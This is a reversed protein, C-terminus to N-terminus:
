YYFDGADFLDNDYRIQYDSADYDFKKLVDVPIEINFKKMFDVGDQLTEFMQYESQDEDEAWVDIHWLINTGPIPDYYFYFGKDHRSSFFCILPKKADEVADWDRDIWHSKVSTHWVDDQLAM